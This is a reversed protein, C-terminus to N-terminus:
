KSVRSVKDVDRAFQCVDIIKNLNETAAEIMLNTAKEIMKITCTLKKIFSTARFGPLVTRSIIFFTICPFNSPASFEASLFFEPPTAPLTLRM